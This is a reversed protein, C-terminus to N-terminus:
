FQFYIFQQGDFVWFLIICVLLLFLSTLHLHKNRFLISKIDKKYDRIEVWMLAFVMTTVFILSGWTIKWKWLLQVGDHAFVFMRYLIDWAQEISWARFFVWAITVVFFTVCTSLIKSFIHQTFMKKRIPLFIIYAIIFLGHLWWWVIFTWAAGHWLGSILFTIILNYYRRRTIVRNGWLPIYVYDKFWTSLSIHWRRWFDAINTALYPKKFNKMLDFWLMRALGIAMDSYWSFDCYIQFWFFVAGIRLHITGFQEPSTYIHDVFYGLRDAIVVKKFLWWIFLHLGMGLNNRSLLIQKKFQPLLHAAREIPWAVLQPFFSIFLAFRWLNKEPSIKSQYIDILYSIAQFTYFSIWLPLLLQLYPLPSSIWVFNGIDQIVGFAFGYYKFFWLISINLIISWWLIFLKHKKQSWILIGAVYNLLTSVILLIVYGIDWAMYFLYSWLLLLILKGRYWALYYLSIFVIFSLIFEISNFLM